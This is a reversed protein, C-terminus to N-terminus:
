LLEHESSILHARESTHAAADGGAAKGAESAFAAARAEEDDFWMENVLDYPADDAVVPNVVYKRLGPLQKAFAVHDNLAWQHFEEQSLGDARRMLSILKLM